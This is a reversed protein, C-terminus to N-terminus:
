IMEISAFLDDVEDKYKDFHYTATGTYLILYFRDELTAGLAAGHMLLGDGTQFTIEFRYGTEPGFAVPRLGTPEVNNAGRRSLSDVVFEMAENPKMEADFEPLEEDKGKRFLAEGTKLGKFFQISELSPGDVTWTERKGDTAKSWAIQADVSFTNGIKVREPEVLTYQACATVLLLVAVVLSLRKM